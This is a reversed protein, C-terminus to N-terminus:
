KRRLDEPVGAKNWEKATEGYTEKVTAEGGMSDIVETVAQQFRQLWQNDSSKLGSEAMKKNIEEKFLQQVVLRYNWAIGVQGVPPEEPIVNRNNGYWIQIKQIWIPSAIQVWQHLEMSVDKLEKAPGKFKHLGDTTIEEIIKELVEGRMAPKAARYEREYSLLIDRYDGLIFKKPAMHLLEPTHYHLSASISLAFLQHHHYDDSLNTKQYDIV